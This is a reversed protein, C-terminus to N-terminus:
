SVEKVSYQLKTNLSTVVLEGSVIYLTGKAMDVIFCDGRNLIDAVINSNLLFGTPKLKMVIKKNHLLQVVNGAIVDRLIPAPSNSTSPLLELQM